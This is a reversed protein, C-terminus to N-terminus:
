RPPGILALTGILISSKIDKACAIPMTFANEEKFMGYFREVWMEMDAADLWMSQDVVGTEDKLTHINPSSVDKADHPLEFSVEFRLVGMGEKNYACVARWHTYEEGDTRAINIAVNSPDAHSSELLRRRKREDSNFRGTARRPHSKIDCDRGIGLRHLHASLMLQFIPLLRIVFKRARYVGAASIPPVSEDGDNPRGPLGDSGGEGDAAAPFAGFLCPSPCGVKIQTATVVPQDYSMIDWRGRQVDLTMRQQKTINQEELHLIFSCDCTKRAADMGHTIALLGPSALATQQLARPDLFPQLNEHLMHTIDMHTIDSVGPMAKRDHQKAVSRSM